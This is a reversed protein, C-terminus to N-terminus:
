DEGELLLRKNKEREKMIKFEKSDRTRRVLERRVIHYYTMQNSDRYVKMLQTLEYVSMENLSYSSPSNVIATIEREREKPEPIPYLLLLEKQLNEKNSIERLTGGITIGLLGDEYFIGMADTKKSIGIAQRQLPPLIVTEYCNDGHNLIRYGVLSYDKRILLGSGQNTAEMMFSLCDGEIMNPLIDRPQFAFPQIPNSCEIIFLAPINKEIAIQFLSVIKRIVKERDDCGLFLDESPITEPAFYPIQYHRVDEVMIIKGTTVLEPNKQVYEFSARQLQPFFSKMNEHTMNAIDEHSIGYYRKLFSSAGINKINSLSNKNKKKGM